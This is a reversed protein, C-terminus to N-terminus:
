EKGLSKLTGLRLWPFDAALGVHIGVKDMQAAEVNFKAGTMAELYRQLEKVPASASGALIPLLAKGDKALIVDSFEQAVAPAIVSLLEVGPLTLCSILLVIQRSIHRM